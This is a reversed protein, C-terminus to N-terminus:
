GSRSGLMKPKDDRFFNHFFCDFSILEPSFDPFYNSPVEVGDSLIDVADKNYFLVRSVPIKSLKCYYHLFNKLSCVKYSLIFFTKKSVM